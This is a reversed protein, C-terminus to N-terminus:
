PTSPEYHITDFLDHASRDITFFVSQGQQNILMVSSPNDAEYVFVAQTVTADFWYNHVHYPESFHIKVLFGSPPLPNIKTVLGDISTLLEKAVDEAKATSATQFVVKEEDLSFVEIPSSAFADQHIFLSTCLLLM